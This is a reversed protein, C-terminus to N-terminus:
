VTNDNKKIFCVSFPLQPYFQSLVVIGYDKYLNNAIAIEDDIMSVEGEEVINDKDERNNGESVVVVGDNCCGCFLTLDTRNESSTEAFFVIDRWEIVFCSFFM